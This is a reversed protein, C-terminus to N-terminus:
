LLQIVTPMHSAYFHMWSLVRANEMRKLEVKSPHYFNKGLIDYTNQKEIKGKKPPFFSDNGKFCYTFKWQKDSVKPTNSMGTWLAALRWTLPVSRFSLSPGPYRAHAATKWKSVTPLLWQKLNRVALVKSWHNKHFPDCSQPTLVSAWLPSFPRLCRAFFGPQM